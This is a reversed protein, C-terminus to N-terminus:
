GYLSPAGDPLTAVNVPFTVLIHETVIIRRM